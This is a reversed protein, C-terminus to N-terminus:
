DFNLADADRVITPTREITSREELSASLSRSIFACPRSVAAMAFARHLGLPTWLRPGCTRDFDGGNRRLIAV